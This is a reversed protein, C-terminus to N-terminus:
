THIPLRLWSGSLPTVIYLNSHLTPSSTCLLRERVQRDRTRSRQSRLRWLLLLRAHQRLGRKPGRPQGQRMRPQRLRHAGRNAGPANRRRQMVQKKQDVKLFRTSDRRVRSCLWSRFWPANTRRFTSIRSWLENSSRTRSTANKEEQVAWKRVSEGPM